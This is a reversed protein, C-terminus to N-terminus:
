ENIESTYKKIKSLVEESEEIEAAKEWYELAAKYEGLELLVDGYHELIEASDDGGHKIAKKLYKAAKKFKNQQYLVWAHTDLYTPERKNKKVCYKSYTYALDLKEGRLSLYYAYNNKVLCNKPELEIVLEYYKDSLWDNEINHYADGLFNYLLGLDKEDIINKNLAYNLKEIAQYNSDLQLASLGYLIYYRPEEPYNELAKGSITFLKEYNNQNYYLYVLKDMLEKSSTDLAVLKEMLGTAIKVSDIKMYFDYALALSNFGYNHKYNTDIVSSLIKGEEQVITDNTSLSYLITNKQQDKVNESLIYKQLYYYSKNLSNRKRELISLSILVDTENQHNQLIDKYINEAKDFDETHLYYRALEYVYDINEPFELILEKLLEIGENFRNLKELSNLEIVLNNEIIGYKIRIDNSLTVAKNYENNLFYMNLLTTAYEPNDNFRTVVRELVSILSDSNKEIKHINIQNLLYYLNATDLQEAQYAYKKALNLQGRYVYIQSLQYLSADSNPYKEIINKYLNEALDLNGFLFQKTAETLASEMEREDTEQSSINLSIFLIFVFLISKKLIM